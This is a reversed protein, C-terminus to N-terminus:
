PAPFRWVWDPRDQESKKGAVGGDDRQNQAISYLVYGRDGERRYRLPEGDIVDRPLEALFAPAMQALTEPYAGRARRFRELACATQLQAVVTHTQMFNQQVREFAPVLLSSMSYYFREFASPTQAFAHPMPAPRFRGEEARIQAAVEDVHQNIRLMNQLLWGRPLVAWAFQARRDTTAAQLIRRRENRNTVAFQELIGNMGARESEVSFRWDALLHLNAM